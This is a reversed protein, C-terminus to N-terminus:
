NEFHNRYTRFRGQLATLAFHEAQAVAQQDISAPKHDGTPNLTMTATAHDQWLIVGDSVRVLAGVAEARAERTAFAQGPDPTGTQLEIATINAMLVYSVRLQAGLAQVRAVEPQDQRWLAQVTIGEQLLLERAREPPVVEKGSLPAIEPRFQSTLDASLHRVAATAVRRGDPTFLLADAEAPAPVPLLALREEALAFPTVEGTWLTHSASAAAQQVAELALQVTTRRYGEQFANYGTAATGMFAFMSPLSPTSAHRKRRKGSSPADMRETPDLLVFHLTGRLTLSRTLGESRELHTWAPLLVADCDLERGLRRAMESNQLSAPTLHLTAMANRVETETPLILHRKTRLSAALDTYFLTECLARLQDPTAEPQPTPKAGAKKKPGIETPTGLSAPKKSSFLGFFGKSRPGPVAAATATAIWKQMAADPISPPLIMVRRLAPAKEQAQTVSTVALLCFVVGM